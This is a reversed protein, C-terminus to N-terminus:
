GRTSDAYYYNQIIYKRKWTPRHTRARAISTLSPPASTSTFRSCTLKNSILFQHLPHSFVKEFLSLFDILRSEEPFFSCPLRSCSAFLFMPCIHDGHENGRTKQLSRPLFPLQGKTDPQYIRRPLNKLAVCLSYIYKTAVFYICVVKPAARRRRDGAILPALLFKKITARSSIQRPM